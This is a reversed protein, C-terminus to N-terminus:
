KIKGIDRFKQLNKTLSDKESSTLKKYGDLRKCFFEFAGKGMVEDYLNIIESFSFTVAHYWFSNSVLGTEFDDIKEHEELSDGFVETFKKVFERVRQTKKLDSIMLPSEITYGLKKLIFIALIDACQEELQRGYVNGYQDFRTIATFESSGDQAKGTLYLCDTIKQFVLHGFEHAIIFAIYEKGNEENLAIFIQCTNDVTRTLGSTLRECTRSVIVELHELKMKFLLNNNLRESYAKAIARVLGGYRSLSTDKYKIVM